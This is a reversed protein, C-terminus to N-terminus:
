VGFSIDKKHPFVGERPFSPGIDLCSDVMSFTDLMGMPGSGLFIHSFVHHFGGGPLLRPM